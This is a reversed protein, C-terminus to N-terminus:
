ALTWSPRRGAPRGARAPVSPVMIAGSGGGGVAGAPGTGLPGPQRADPEHDAGAAAPRRAVLDVAVLEEDAPGGAAVEAQRLRLQRRHHRLDGALRVADADAPQGGRLRDREVARGQGRVLGRGDAM